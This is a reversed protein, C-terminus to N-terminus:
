GDDAMSIALHQANDIDSLFRSFFFQFFLYPMTLVALWSAERFAVLRLSQSHAALWVLDKGKVYEAMRRSARVNRVTVTLWRTPIEYPILIWLHKLV